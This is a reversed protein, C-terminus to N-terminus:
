LKIYKSKNKSDYVKTLFIYFAVLLIIIIYFNILMIFFENTFQSYCKKAFNKFILNSIPFNEGINLIKSTTLILSLSLCNGAFIVILLKVTESLKKINILFLILNMFLLLILGILFYVGVFNKEMQILAKIQASCPISTTSSYIQGCFSALKQLNVSVGETIKNGNSAGYEVFKGYLTDEFNSCYEENENNYLKEFSNLIDCEIDDKSIVTVFFDKSFGSCKGLKEMNDLMQEVATAIYDSHQLNKIIFSKNFVTNNIIFVITLFM